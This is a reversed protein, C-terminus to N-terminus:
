SVALRVSGDYTDPANPSARTRTATPSRSPATPARPRTGAADLTCTAARRAATRARAEVVQGGRRRWRGGLLELPRRRMRSRAAGRGGGGRGARRRATRPRGPRGPRPCAWPRAAPDQPAGQMSLAAARPVPTSRGRARGCRSSAGRACRGPRGPWGPAVASAATLLPSSASTGMPQGAHPSGTTQASRHHSTQPAARVPRGGVAAPGPSAQDEAGPPHAVAALGPPGSPRTSRQAVAGIGPRDRQGPQPSGFPPASPQHSRQAGGRVGARSWTSTTSPGTAATM